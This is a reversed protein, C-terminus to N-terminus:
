KKPYNRGRVRDYAQQVCQQAEAASTRGLWERTRPKKLDNEAIKRAEREVKPALVADMGLQYTLTLDSDNGTQLNRLREEPNYSMGIKSRNREANHIVYVYRFKPTPIDVFM